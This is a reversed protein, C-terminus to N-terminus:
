RAPAPAPPPCPNRPADSRPAPGAPRPPGPNAAPQPPPPPARPPPTRPANRRDARRPAAAAHGLGAAPRTARNAPPTRPTPPPKARPAPRRAPAPPRPPRPLTGILLGALKTAAHRRAARAREKAGTTPQAMATGRGMSRGRWGPRHAAPGARRAALVRNPDLGPTHHIPKGEPPAPQIPPEPKHATKADAPTPHGTLEAAHASRELQGFVKIRTGTDAIGPGWDTAPDRGIAQAIDEIPAERGDQSAWANLAAPPTDLPGPRGAPNV